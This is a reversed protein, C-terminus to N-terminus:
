SDRGAGAVHVAGGGRGVVHEADENGAKM